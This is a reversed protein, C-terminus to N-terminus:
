IKIVHRSVKAYAKKNHVNVFNLTFYVVDEM